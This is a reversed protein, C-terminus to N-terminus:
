NLQSLIDQQALPYPLFRDEIPSYNRGDYNLEDTRDYRVLDYFRIGWEMGFEAFKEDLVVDLDVNSINPLGARDRVLNVAQAASISNSNGGNVLAEAHMLLIESYRICIFNKNTGYSTRGPTLQNSPLYHKGSSFIARPNPEGDTRGIVDGDRTTNSVFDPLDAYQPDSQISEIGEQTFLVSTELRITEERDLMFKIYKETPEWFGWGPSAGSVAPEWNNPGFFAYLYARNEGTAQGFDSYQLELLNEDNLKGPIKFLNYYDTELSFGGNNIIEGTAEAVEDYRGIELNAMAKIALATYRTVGGPLEARENPRMDLLLPIAEDMEESIYIMVDEFSSLPENYLDESRATRPILIEGWLRALQFLEFAEMVKIEAIYQDAIAPNDAFEKYREIEEIAAKWSFIDGYLNQWASNYMWFSPEYRFEDTEILPFQDGEANVDDGRVGIVPFTEWQLSYFSSYAGVLVSRMNETQTYDVNEELFTASLPEELKDDCAPTILLIPIIGLSLILKQLNKM